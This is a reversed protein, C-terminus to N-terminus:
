LYTPYYEVYADYGGVGVSVVNEGPVFIPWNGFQVKGAWNQGNVTMKKNIGDLVVFNSGSPLQTFVCSMISLSGSGSKSASIKIDTFPVTSECYFRTLNIDSYSYPGLSVFPGRRFGKFTYESKVKANRSGIGVLEENGYKELTVSYYFGDDPIYLEIKGDVNRGAQNAKGFAEYNFKSRLVKAEHLDRGNFTINIKITRMGVTKKLMIFDSSNIGQFLDNTIPVDGIVYDLHSEANWRSLPWGNIIIDNEM